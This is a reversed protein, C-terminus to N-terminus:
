LKNLSRINVLNYLGLLLKEVAKQLDLKSSLHNYLIPAIDWCINVLKPSKTIKDKGIGLFARILLMVEKM